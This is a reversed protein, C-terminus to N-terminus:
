STLGAVSSLRARVRVDGAVGRQRPAEDGGALQGLQRHEEAAVRDRRRGVDEVLQRLVLVEADARKCASSSIAPM